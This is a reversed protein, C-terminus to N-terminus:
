VLRTKGTLLEQMMGQKLVRTKERRAELAAIETDMDSLVAAIARQEPLTPLTVAYNKVVNWDSRPMHTGYATSAVDIFENTQVLQFLYESVVVDPKAVLPWIETSCVGDRDASWYKRLYSRLRGFLVDGSYFRAKVSSEETATTHGLLRGSGQEIHELEICYPHEGIRKPDIKEKRIYVIEDFRYPTWRSSFDPLRTQGALFQQMAGQKIARKKAILRDLAAILADVNSLAEAIARQEPLPPVLVDLSLVDSKSLNQQSSGQGVTKFYKQNSNIFNSLFTPLVDKSARLAGIRQNLVYQGSEPIVDTLGLFDGHAVDSLVMVLDDKALSGDHFNVREHESKLKGEIDISDLTILCFRGDERIYSEYPKGNWYLAIEGLKKVEWGKPIVGVETRKYGARVEV